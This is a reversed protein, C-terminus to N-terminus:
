LKVYKGIFPIRKMIRNLGTANAIKDGIIGMALGGYTQVVKDLQFGVKYFPSIGTYHQSIQDIMDKGFQIPNSQLADVGGVNEFSDAMPAVVGGILPLIPLRKDRHGRHHPKRHWSYHRKGKKKGM